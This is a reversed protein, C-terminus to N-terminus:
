LDSERINNWQMNRLGTVKSRVQNAYQNAAERRGRDLAIQTLVREQFEQPQGDLVYKAVAGGIGDTPMPHPAFKTTEEARSFRELGTKRAGDLEKAVRDVETRLFAADVPRLEQLDALDLEHDLCKAPEIALVQEAQSPDSKESPDELHTLSEPPLLLGSCRASAQFTFDAVVSSRIKKYAADLSQQLHMLDLEKQAIQEDLLAKQYLPIVTFFIAWVTFIFLGLQSV